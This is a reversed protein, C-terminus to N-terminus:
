NQGGEYYSIDRVLGELETTKAIHDLVSNEHPDGQTNNLVIELYKEKIVEKIDEIRYVQRDICYSLIKNLDKIDYLEKLKLFERAHFSPQRLIPATKEFYEEGLEFTSIFQRKIEPISKPVLNKIKHYHEDVVKNKGKGEIIEHEAIKDMAENYIELKYGYVKRIKVSKNVYKVPVSYKNADVSVMADLSVKRKNLDTNLFKNSPLPLLYEIEELFMEDPIRKTTGNIEKNWDKIFEKAVINLETMSQFSKGKIFQEEIYQYPKEVKGKTRARYPNCANLETGLHMSLKLAGENYKVEKGKEHSIVLAKPNDIILEKTVGGLDMFLEEVAEYISDADVSKSFVIAKKRTASLIMTFCHVQTLSGGIEVKYDSWDFQAQDGYPPRM